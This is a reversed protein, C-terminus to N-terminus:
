LRPPKGCLVSRQPFSLEHCVQRSCSKFTRIDRQCASGSHPELRCLSQLERKLLRRDTGGETGGTGTHIGSRHSLRERRASDPCRLSFRRKAPWGPTRRGLSDAYRADIERDGYRGSLNQCRLREGHGSDQRHRPYSEGAYRAPKPQLRRSFPDLDRASGFKDAATKVLELLQAQDTVDCALPLVRDGSEGILRVTEELKEMRRGCIVVGADEEVFRQAIARGLGTGGGTVIAIKGSLHGM